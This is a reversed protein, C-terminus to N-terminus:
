PSEVRVSSLAKVLALIEDAFNDSQVPRNHFVTRNLLIAPVLEALLDLQPHDSGLLRAFLQRLPKDDYRDRIADAIGKDERLASIVGPLLDPKSAYFETKERIVSALDAAADDSSPLPPDPFARIADTVLAEKTEWRRYITGLGSGAKEAVDQVRLKDFGHEIILEATAALIADTRNRDRKRGRTLEARQGSRKNM